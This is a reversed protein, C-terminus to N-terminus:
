KHIFNKVIQSRKSLDMRFISLLQICLIEDPYVYICVDMHICRSTNVPKVFFKILRWNGISCSFNCSKTAWFVVIQRTGM